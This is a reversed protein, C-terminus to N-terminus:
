ANVVSRDRRFVPSRLSRLSLYQFLLFSWKTIKRQARQPKRLAYKPIISITIQRSWVLCNPTTLRRSFCYLTIHLVSVSFFHTIASKCCFPFSCLFSTKLFDKKGAPRYLPLYPALEIVPPPLCLVVVVTAQPLYSRSNIWSLNDARYPPFYLHLPSTMGIFRWLLDGFQKAVAPSIVKHHDEAKRQEHPSGYLPARVPLRCWHSATFKRQEYSDADLPTEIYDSLFTRRLGESASM